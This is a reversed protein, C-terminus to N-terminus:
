RRYNAITIFRGGIITMGFIMNSNNLEILASYVNSEVSDIMKKRVIYMICRM